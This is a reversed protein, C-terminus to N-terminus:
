PHGSFPPSTHGAPHFHIEAAPQHTWPLPQIASVERRKLGHRLWGCESITVRALPAVKATKHQGGASLNLFRYGLQVQLACHPYMQRYYAIQDNFFPQTGCAFRPVPPKGPAFVFLWDLWVFEHRLRESLRWHSAHGFHGWYSAVLSRIGQRAAGNLKTLSHLAQWERLKARCQRLVRRRVVQHSPYIIYGLFDAGSHNPQPQPLDRGSHSRKLTLRLRQHLFASIDHRWALLQAPNDHLLIFDDVYRLYRRCKVKHKIFQDLENLYVNAFFQSSLNGVALGCGKRANVMRKHAPVQRHEAPTGRYFATRAPQQNVLTHCLTKLHLYRQEALKGRQQAKALHHCLMAYLLRRDLSNFFNHVDLQLFYGQPQQRMFQQLRAVAQHSGKGSRNAYSDYIFAPEYLAELQPVLYHHVVRDNFDPAHIERTKPYSAVFCLTRQPRWSGAQLQHSLALLRPLWDAEFTLQNYSPKKRRKAHQWAAYLTQLSATTNDM